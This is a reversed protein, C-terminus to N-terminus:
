LGCANCLVEDKLSRRWLPTHTVKCNSCIQSLEALNSSSEEHSSDPGSESFLCLPTAGLMANEVQLGLDAASDLLKRRKKNSKVLKVPAPISFAHKIERESEEKNSFSEFPLAQTSPGFNLDHSPSRDLFNRFGRYPPEFTDLKSLFDAPLGEEEFGIMLTPASSGQVDASPFDEIDLMGLLSLSQSPSTQNRSTDPLHELPSLARVFTSLYPGSALETGSPSCPNSLFIGGGAFRQRSGGLANHRIPHIQACAVPDCFQFSDEAMASPLMSLSCPKSLTCPSAASSVDILNGYTAQKSDPCFRPAKKENSLRELSPDASALMKPSSYADEQAYPPHGDIMVSNYEYSPTSQFRFNTVELPVSLSNSRATQLAKEYGNSQLSLCPKNPDQIPAFCSETPSTSRPMEAQLDLDGDLAYKVGINQGTASEPYVQNTEAFAPPMLCANPLTSYNPLSLPYSDGNGFHHSPAHQLVEPQLPDHVGSYYLEHVSNLRVNPKDWNKENRDMRGHRDSITRLDVGNVLTGSSTSTKFHRDSPETTVAPFKSSQHYSFTKGIGEVLQILNGCTNSRCTEPHCRHREALQAQLTAAAMAVTKHSQLLATQLQVLAVAQEEMTGESEMPLAIGMNACANKLAPWISNGSEIRHQPSPKFGGSEAYRFESEFSLSSLNECLGNKKLNPSPMPSSHRQYHLPISESPFHTFYSGMHSLLGPSSRSKLTSELCFENQPTDVTNSVQVSGSRDTGRSYM